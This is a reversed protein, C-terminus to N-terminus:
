IETSRLIVAFTRRQQKKPSAELLFKAEAVFVWTGLTLVRLCCLCLFISINCYKAGDDIAPRRSDQAKTNANHGSSNETDKSEVPAQLEGEPASSVTGDCDPPGASHENNTPVPIDEAPPEQPNHEASNSESPMDSM